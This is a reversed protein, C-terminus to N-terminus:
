LSLGLYLRANTTNIGETRLALINPTFFFFSLECRVTYLILAVEIDHPWLPIQSTTLSWIQGQNATTNM